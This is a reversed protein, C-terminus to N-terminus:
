EDEFIMVLKKEYEEKCKKKVENKLRLIMEAKGNDKLVSVIRKCVKVSNSGENEISEM